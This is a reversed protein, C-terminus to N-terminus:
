KLRRALHKEMCVSLPSDMYEGFPPIRVFGYKAYLGLSEPQRVGTELVLRAVGLERAVHEIRELLAWGARQGRYKPTVYMRKIEATSQDIRRVAGCGIAAQEIRAILFAGRGAEVETADLRFHNAGEEPYRHSLEANLENILDRAARSEISERRIVLERM